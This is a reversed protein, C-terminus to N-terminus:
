DAESNRAVLLVAMLCAAVCVVAVVFFGDFRGTWDYVYPIVMGIFAATFNAGSQLKSLHRHYHEKGYLAALALPPSAITIAYIGGFLLSGVYLVPVMDSCLWYLVLSAMVVSLTVMMAKYIGIRDALAGLILKWAVNGVMVLATFTAGVELTQGVSLAYTPLQNAFMVVTCTTIAVFLLLAFLYAPPEKAEGGAHQLAPRKGYPTCHVREPSAEVLFLCPLIIIVVCVGALVLCTNRWGTQAILTSCIPSFIAGAVGSFGSVLGIVFGTKEHFWNQIVMPLIIVVGGQSIGALVAGAYWHWLHTFGWMGGLSVVTCAGILTIVVKANYKFYLTGCIGMAVASVLTRITHYISLDGARFGLDEIIASFIIGACNIFVGVVGSQILLLGLAVLWARHVKTIHKM